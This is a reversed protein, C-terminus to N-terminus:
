ETTVSEKLFYPNIIKDNLVLQNESITYNFSHYNSLKKGKIYELILKECLLPRNKIDSEWLYLIKIGHYRDIYTSKRKDRAIDKHQMANLQEFDYLLPNAHFYDGMVEIILDYDCLYNDVAYYKFSQENVYAIKQSDLINNVIRQPKTQRTLKGTKYCNVTNIRCKEKFEDSMKIGTNYLKEGVYYQSRFKAYCECSCFNHNEGMKNTHQLRNLPLLMMKGCYDCQRQQSNYKTANEGTYFKSRAQHYCKRSCFIHRNNKLKCMHTEITKGCNECQVKM